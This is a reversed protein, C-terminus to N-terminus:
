YEERAKKDLLHLENELQLRYTELQEDDIDKPIYIPDGFAYTVKSFVFFPIQYKDWSKAEFFPKSYPVFPIIPVQSMQAIKIIGPKVQYIPGKPGDVTYALTQGNKLAKIIERLAKTGGRNHSGRITSFGLWKVTKAITEGDNSQSILINLTNKRDKGKMALLGYQWGHWLAYIAPKIEPKYNIYKIRSFHDLSFFYSFDGCALTNAEVKESLKKEGEQLFKNKNFIDFINFINIRM